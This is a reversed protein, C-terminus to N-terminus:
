LLVTTLDSNGNFLYVKVMVSLWVVVSYVGCDLKRKWGVVTFAPVTSNQEPFHCIISGNVLLLALYTTDNEIKNGSVNNCIEAWCLTSRKPM